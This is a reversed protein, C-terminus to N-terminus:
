VIEVSGKPVGRRSRLRSALFRMIPLMEGRNQPMGDGRRSWRIYEVFEFTDKARAVAGETVLSDSGGGLMLIPTKSKGATSPSVSAPLPGGVSIIGGLAGLQDTASAVALAAMGGQGYGFLLVESRLYGCTQVLGKEIVDEAIIRRAKEFGADVDIPGAGQHLDFLIDDGWHFGHLDFPLPCPARLSICVTEPLSLNKGFTTFSDHSDGLGHLLILVNLPPELSSTTTISLTLNSPFDSTTSVRGPMNRFNM